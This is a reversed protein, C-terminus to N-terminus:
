IRKSGQLDAVLYPVSSQEMNWLVTKITDSCLIYEENRTCDMGILDEEHKNPFTKRFLNGFQVPHSCKGWKRYSSIQPTCTIKCKDEDDEKGTKLFSEMTESIEREDDANQQLKGTPKAM